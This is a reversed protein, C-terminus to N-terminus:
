AVILSSRALLPASGHASLYRPRRFSPCGPHPRCRGFRERIDINKAAKVTRVDGPQLLAAAPLTEAPLLQDDVALRIAALDIEDGAAPHPHHVVRHGPAFDGEVVEDGPAMEALQGGEVALGARGIDHRQFRRDDGRHRM